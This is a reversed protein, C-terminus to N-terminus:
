ISLLTEDLGTRDSQGKTLYRIGLSVFGPQEEMAETTSNVAILLPNQSDLIPM